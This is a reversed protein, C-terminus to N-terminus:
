WYAARPRIAASIEAAEASTTPDAGPSTFKKWCRPVVALHHRARRDEPATAIPHAVAASASAGAGARANSGALGTHSTPPSILPRTPLAHATRWFLLLSSLALLFSSDPWTPPAAFASSPSPAAFTPAAAPSAAAAAHTSMPAFAAIM